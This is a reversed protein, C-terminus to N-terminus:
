PKGTEKVKQPQRLPLAIHFQSGKGLQSEVWIRGHHREVISKVIALGLGSGQERQVDRRKVRFFKEFLRPQDVPAIGVGTDEVTLLVQDQGLPAVRVTVRGEPPTYKIANDVLNALARELLCVDAEVLPPANSAIEVGLHIRKAQARAELTNVVQRVVDEVPVMRLQLGVGAEIRGLDLLNNVLRSMSDVAQLIQRLYQKQREDLRATLDLMTAYGQVLTLPSRLDHSVTAVFESKLADLEKYHTIDRLVAVRGVPRGESRVDSVSAFFVRGDELVIEASHPGRGPKLLLEVLDPIPLAQRLPKGIQHSDIQLVEFAAPNGLILRGREDTVLIPDPSSALVAELRQKDLQTELLLRVNALALSLQGALTRLYDLGTPDVAEEASFIVYLAGFLHQEYRLALCVLVGPVRKGPPIQIGSLREPHRLVIQNKQRVLRVAVVDLYAYDGQHPGAGFSRPRSEGESPLATPVLAIRVAEPRVKLAAELVPRVLQEVDVARATHRSVELLQGLETLREKLSQRMQEFAQRLQGVEDVGEVQLPHDLDGRAIRQAEAALAGLSRTIMRLLSQMGVLSLAYLGLAVAMLPLAIQLTLRIVEDSPLLAVVWWPRGLTRRAIMWRREGTPSTIAVMTGEAAVWEDAQFPIPPQFMNAPYLVRGEEDLVLGLGGYAELTQLAEVLPATVPNADLSARGILVHSGDPLPAVFSVWGTPAEGVPPSTIVQTPVGALAFPLAAMEDPSLARKDEPPYVAVVRGQADALLLRTFFASSVFARQLAEQRTQPDAFGITQTALRHIHDQGSELFFPVSEAALGTVVQLRDDLMRRAARQAEIISIVAMAGGILLALPISLGLFRGALSREMPSPETAMQERRGWPWWRAWALLSGVVAVVALEAWCFAIQHTYNALAPWWDGAPERQALWEIWPFFLTVLGGLAVSGWPHRLLRFVPTRYPQFAAWSIALATTMAEWPAFPSHTWLLGRLTGEIAALVMAPIVGLWGAALGWTLAGLPLWIVPSLGTWTAWDGQVNPRPYGVLYAFVPTFLLLIILLATHRRQWRWACTCWRRTSLMGVFLSGGWGLWLIWGLTCEPWRWYWATTHWWTM